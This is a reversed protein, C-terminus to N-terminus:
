KVAEGDSSSPLCRAIPGFSGCIPNHTTYLWSAFANRQTNNSRNQVFSAVCSFPFAIYLLLSVTHQLYPGESLHIYIYIRRMPIHLFISPQQRHTQVEITQSQSKPCNTQAYTTLSLCRPNPNTCISTYSFSSGCLSVNQSFWLFVFRIRVTKKHEQVRKWSPCSHISDQRKKPSKEIHQDSIWNSRRSFNLSNYHLWNKEWKKYTRFIEWIFINM